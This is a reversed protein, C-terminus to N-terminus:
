LRITQRQSKIKEAVPTATPLAATPKAATVPLEEDQWNQGNLYTYPDKRYKKEPTAAVYLPVHALITSRVKASLASWKRECKARDAKKDYASWFVEFGLQEDKSPKAKKGKQESVGPADASSLTNNFQEILSNKNDASDAYPPPLNQTGLDASEAYPTRPNQTDEGLLSLAKQSPILRRNTPSTYDTERAVYDNDDLWKMAEQISRRSANYREAYFGDSAYVKGTSQYMSIVDALLVKANLSPAEMALISLPISLYQPTPCAMSLLPM